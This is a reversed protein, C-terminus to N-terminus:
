IEEMVIKQRYSSVHTAVTYERQLLIWDLSYCFRVKKNEHEGNLIDYVRKNSPGKSGFGVWFTALEWLEQLPVRLALPSKIHHTVPATIPFNWLSIITAFTSFSNGTPSPSAM